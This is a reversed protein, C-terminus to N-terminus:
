LLINKLLVIQIYNMVSLQMTEHNTNSVSRKLNIKKNASGLLVLWTNSKDISTEFNVSLFCILSAIIGSVVLTFIAEHRLPLHYKMHIFRIFYLAASLKLCKLHVRHWSADM